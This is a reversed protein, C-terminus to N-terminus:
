KLKSYKTWIKLIIYFIKLCIELKRRDRDTYFFDRGISLIQSSFNIYITKESTGSIFFGMSWTKEDFNRYSFYIFCFTFMDPKELYDLELNCKHCWNLISKKLISYFIIENSFIHFRNKQSDFILFCSEM